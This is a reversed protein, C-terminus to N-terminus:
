HLVRNSQDIFRDATSFIKDVVETYSQPSLQKAYVTLATVMFTAAVTLPDYGDEVLDNYLEATALQVDISSM